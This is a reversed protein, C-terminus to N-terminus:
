AIELTNKADLGLLRRMKNKQVEVDEESAFKVPMLVTCHDLKVEIVGNPDIFNATTTAFTDFESKM